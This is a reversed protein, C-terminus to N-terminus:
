GCEYCGRFYSEGCEPQCPAVGCVANACPDNGGVGCQPNFEAYTGDPCAWTQNPDRCQCQGSGGCEAANYSNKGDPCILDVGQCACGTTATATDEKTPTSTPKKTATATPTDTSTATSTATSTSTSTATDTATPAETVAPTAETAAETPPPNFLKLLERGQAVGVCLLILLVVILVIIWWFRRLFGRLDQREATDGM